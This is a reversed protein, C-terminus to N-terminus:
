VTNLSNHKTPDSVAELKKINAVAVLNMDRLQRLEESYDTTNQNNNNKSPSMMQNLKALNQAELKPIIELKMNAIKEDRDRSRKLKREEKVAKRKDFDINMLSESDSIDSDSEILLSIDDDLDVDDGEGDSSSEVDENLVVALVNYRQKLTAMKTKLDKLNDRLYKIKEDKRQKVKTLEKEHNVITTSLNDQSEKLLNGYHTELKTFEKNYNNNMIKKEEDLTKKYEKMHEEFNHIEQDFLVKQQRRDNMVSSRYSHLQSDMSRLITSVDNERKVKEVDLEDKLKQIERSQNAILTAIAKPSGLAGLSPPFHENWEELLTQFQEPEGRNMKIEHAVGALQLIIEEAMQHVNRAAAKNNQYKGSCKEVYFLCIDKVQQVCSKPINRVSQGSTAGTPPIRHTPEAMHLADKRM